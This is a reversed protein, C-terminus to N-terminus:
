SIPVDMATAILEFDHQSITFLGFRFRHGWRRKDLIFDLGDILPRVPMQQCEKFDVRRRYPVFDPSMAFQYIEDDAIQGIATFAQLPEGNEYSTKPSYFVIWDGKQMRKLGQPKGHNAQTFGGAVGRHVHDFSITNVWYKM